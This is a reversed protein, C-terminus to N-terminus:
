VEPINEKLILHLRPPHGEYPLGRVAHTLLNLAERAEVRPNQDIVADLTGELLLRKTGETLEHGLFVVSRELDRERLARAVGQNGAGINYIGALDDHRDLLAAAEVYARERDDLMERLEVISLNPFEEGLVHRFGMEREQHGRYSLSGAFMAVKRPASGGLLRGLVYGALRGAQRNDIGVYAIRPVHLVDTALTVVKVDSASLSRIAERVTPHDLAILGVGRTRGELDHLTRALTDPNFGEISSIHVDLEQRAAGQLALQDRLMRIFTNTGEPLVFDLRITESPGFDSVDRDGAIYGLRRATEYVIERTRERVGPRNNLVRDVTAASVGAERAIDILTSRM